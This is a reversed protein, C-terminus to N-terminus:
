MIVINMTIFLKFNIWLNIFYCCYCYDSLLAGMYCELMKYRREYKVLVIFFILAAGMPVTEYFFIELLLIILHGIQIYM